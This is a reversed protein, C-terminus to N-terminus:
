KIDIQALLEKLEIESLRHTNFSNYEKLEVKTSGKSYYKDYNLDRNDAAVRYYEGLDEAGMFEEKSLLTEHMKEAHRIGINKIEVKSNYIGKLCIALEGITSAPSKQVFIDGSKGNNFAYLVLEVAHDLTMMFRTMDPDTVTIPKGTNIQEIFHPIVSGRSAMVNGYRTGTIITKKSNRSKAVFVKEMMAKSVGMANIPYVAKDTSLCVVKKVDNSIASNLVNETGLVNTRVAEMPYFECSPVQKLAAAHFVYDVGIMADKLSDVNRVDGIYFKIKPNNYHVRMDHQKKEDRSLIRIEKIESSLFRDLVANGF